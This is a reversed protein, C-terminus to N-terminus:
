PKFTFQQYEYYFAVTAKVAQSPGASYPVTSFSYPYAKALRVKFAKDYESPRVSKPAEGEGVEVNEPLVGYKELKTITLDCAYDDYYRQAHAKHEYKDYDTEPNYLGPNNPVRTPQIGIIMDQWLKFFSIPSSGLDCIFTVDLENYLKAAAMKQTLGKKPMKVDASTITSGPIQIDQCLLNLRYVGADFQNGAADYWPYAKGNDAWFNTMVESPKISFEFLNSSSVGKGVIQKIYNDVTIKPSGM